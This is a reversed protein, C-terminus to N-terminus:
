VRGSYFLQYYKLVISNCVLQKFYKCVICGQIIASIRTFPNHTNEYKLYYRKFLTYDKNKENRISTVLSDSYYGNRYNNNQLVLSLFIQKIKNTGSISKERFTYKLLRDNLTAVRYGALISRINFDYDQATFLADRYGGINEWITKKFIWTPHVTCSVYKSLRRITKSDCPYDRKLGDYVTGKENVVIVRTTAFKIENQIMFDVTKEVRMNLSEDDADMRCIYNGRSNQIGINLSKALGYNSANRILRIPIKSKARLRQILEDIDSRNPNDLVVVIEFLPFSQFMMSTIARDIMWIEENYVCIVCSIKFLSKKNVKM